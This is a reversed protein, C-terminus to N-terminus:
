QKALALMDHQALKALGVLETRYAAPDNISADFFIQVDAGGGLGMFGKTKERPENVTIFDTGGLLPEALAIVVDGDKAPAPKTRAVSQGKAKGDPTRFAIRSQEARLGIQAYATGIHHSTNTFRGTTASKASGLTVVYSAKVVHANLEKALAVELGPLEYIKGLSMASPGGGTSSAMGMGSIWGKINSKRPYNYVGGEAVYPLYPKLSSASVLMVDGDFNAFKSHDAIGAAAILKQYSPSALVTAEPVVDFGDAQLDTKLQAYIDDAISSLLAPDFDAMMLSTSTDTKMAFMGSTNTKEGGVSAQFSVMVSTIAVRKTAALGAATSDTFAVKVGAAPAEAGFAATALLATTVLLARGIRSHM